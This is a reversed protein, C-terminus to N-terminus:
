AFLSETLRSLSNLLCLDKDGDDGEKFFLPFFGVPLIDEFLTPLFYDGSVFLYLYGLRELFIEGM